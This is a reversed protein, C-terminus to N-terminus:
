EAERRRDRAIDALQRKLQVGDCGLAAAVRAFLEDDRRLVAALEKRTILEFDGLVRSLPGEVTNAAIAQALDEAASHRVARRVPTEHAAIAEKVSIGRSISSRIIQTLGRVDGHRAWDVKKLLALDLDTLKFEPADGSFREKDVKNSEVGLLRQLREAYVRRSESAIVAVLETLDDLRDSLSVLRIVHDSLRALLDPRLDGLDRWTAAITLGRFTYGHDEDGEKGIPYVMAGSLVTLLKPQLATSLDGLEDLFVVGETAAAGATPKDTQETPLGHMAARFIGDRRVVDTAVGKGIGFLQTDALSDVLGTLSQERYWDMNQIDLRAPGDLSMSKMFEPISQAKLLHVYRGVAIARALTSKGTGPAGLILAGRALIDTSLQEADARLRKAADSSGAVLAAFM